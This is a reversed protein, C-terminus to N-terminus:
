GAGEILTINSVVLQPKDRNNSVKGRMMCIVGNKAYEGCNIYAKPFIVFDLTQEDDAIVGMCMDEKKAHTKVIRASSIRGLVTLECGENALATDMSVAEHTLVQYREKYYVLSSVTLENGLLSREANAIEVHSMGAAIRCGPNVVEFAGAKFLAERMASNVIKAPMRAKLDDISTFPGNADREVIIKEACGSIGRVSQLGLYISGDTPTYECLSSNIDPPRLHIGRKRCELILTPKRDEKAHNLMAAFFQSPYKASLWATWCTIVAYSSAHARNFSYGAFLEINDWLATAKERSMGREVAGNTFAERYPQIIEKKKKSVAKVIKYGDMKSLGGVRGVVDMIQEQYVLVGWTDDVSPWMLPHVYAVGERSEGDGILIAETGNKRRIYSPGGTELPGPRFLAVAAVIDGFETPRMSMIFSTFGQGELQFVGCTKGQQILEYIMPDNLDIDNTTPQGPIHKLADRIISLNKLGLIDLKLLGVAAIADMDFQTIIQKMGKGYQLPILNYLEEEAIVVGGAHVSEARPMGEVRLADTYLKKFYPDNDVANRFPVEHQYVIPLSLKHLVGDIIIYPDEPILDTLSAVGHVGCARAMDKLAQRPGLTSFSQIQVVKHDSGGYLDGMHAIIEGRRDSDFDIDIDAATADRGEGMFREHMLRHELPDLMTIGLLWSVIMGSASGRGPGHVIGHEDAYDVCDAVILFIDSLEKDYMIKLEENLRGCYKDNYLGLAKLKNWCKDELERYASDYKDKNFPYRPLMKQPLIPTVDECRKYIDFTGDSIGPFISLMEEPSKLYCDESYMMDSKKTSDAEDDARKKGSTHISMMQCHVEHDEKTLFHADNTIIFPIGQINGQEILFENLPKQPAYGNDMLELYFRDGFLDRYQHIAAIADDERGATYLKGVKGAICATTCILGESHAELMPWDIRPKYYHGVLYGHSTLWCLNKYGIQNMAILIIHNNTGEPNKEKIRCDSDPNSVYLEAGIIPKIGEAVCAKHFEYVGAMSGHDSIGIAPMGFEKAKKAMEKPKMMGDLLSYYSLNHLQIHRNIAM